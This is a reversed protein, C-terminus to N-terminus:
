KCNTWDMMEKTSLTRNWINFDSIQPIPSRKYGQITTDDSPKALIVKDLDKEIEYNGVYGSAMELGNQM